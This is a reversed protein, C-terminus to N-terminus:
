KTETTKDIFCGEKENWFARIKDSVDASSVKIMNDWERPYLKRYSSQLFREDLLLVVGIDNMTRIVRGAAQLVKNMGPYRYAYDFGSANDDDFYDKLIERENCVLPLGTGVIIAGILSDNKLDIGESFIGGLICFGILSKDNVSSEFKKLFAERMEEPMYEQQLICEENSPDLFDCSYKEYVATMFAYSPFFVMYNGKKEKVTQYIYGAIRHYELDNRRTYKSTVDYAAFLGRNKNDFVSKAYVEYDEPEGGLIKKYYQIPLLTASFLITSRGKDMCEKLNKSPDICLLKVIFEKNETMSVYSKYHEDIKEYIMIFHCIEFYFNMVDKIHHYENEEEIFQDMVTHLSTVLAAFRDIDDTVFFGDSQKKLSLMEKNCRELAKIVRLALSPKSFSKILTQKELDDNLIRKLTLFDEKKLVASYMDRGREVLNHAEDILFSYNGKSSDAFFRKLAVHPDFVYNYDCVVADVFISADLGLEFPCVKYKDAIKEIVSRDINDYNVIMDYLADNVRDYHGNARDCMKPSCEPEEFPCIKDKATITVTKFKLGVSRMKDFTEEAVTRTITKATLYFIKETLGEGMSKVAPFITSITKGVGTPAELFLKKKKLITQYVYIALQKQGERYEFPFPMQKISVQRTMYWDYQFDAWKIYDRMLAEFWEVLETMSYEYAFYKMAETEIHCYSMRIRITELENQIGYIYAYLKAQALHVPVPELLYELKGSTTKIEDITIQNKTNQTLDQNLLTNKDQIANLYIKENEEVIIGDARGEIFIDFRPTVYKYKLLFEPYYNKGMGSQIKRHLRSGELMANEASASRRNDIDGSRLVFEVLQRVSIKISYSLINDMKESQSKTHEDAIGPNAIIQNNKDKKKLKREVILM